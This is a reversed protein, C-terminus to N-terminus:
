LEIRFGRVKVMHDKRGAFEFLGEDNVRVLDGTRVYTEVYDPFIERRYFTQANLEPRNWYGQMMDPTRVVWEGFEGDAVENDDEDLLLYQANPVMQGVSLPSDDDLWTEPSPVFYYTSQNTEAPGFVNSFRTQPLKQMLTRLHKPPFPEGGFMVWRLSSLDYNDVADRMHILPFPVSYWFTLKDDQMIQLLNTPFMMEAEGIIVTTAGKYIGTMYDFTCMDFHLPSYNSLVDTHQVDYLNSSMKVYGLSSRHTHMMGKPKGTSGSTYMIYALDDEMTIREPPNDSPLQVVEDWSITRVGDISESVGIVFELSNDDQAVKQLSQLKNDEAVIGRLDCDEIISRLRAVPSRPDLPVFVAGVRVIGYLAIVTEFGKNLFIGIRDRRQIGQQDLMHALQVSKAYLESYSLTADRFKLATKDPYQETAGNLTHHLLYLM